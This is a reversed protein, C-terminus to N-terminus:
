EDAGEADEALAPSGAVAGATFLIHVDRHDGDQVVSITGQPAPDGRDTLEIIDGARLRYGLGQYASRSVWAESPGVAIQSARRGTNAFDIAGPRPARSVTARLEAPARAPDAGGGYNRDGAQPLVRIGESFKRDM